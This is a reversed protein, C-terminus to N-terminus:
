APRTPRAPLFDGALVSNSGNLYTELVALVDKVKLRTNYPMVPGAFDERACNLNKNIAVILDDRNSRRLKELKKKLYEPTWFGVIELLVEKGSQHVLKFDPILVADGLDIVAQEREITWETKRKEFTRYFAEEVSSDFPHAQKYHSTLGCDQDLVFYRQGKETNVQATMQWKEALLLGPLFRALNVGYKQTKRFLSFPGDIEVVYGEEQPYIKHMLQALKLYRFVTQYGDWIRITMRFCRYLVGQALALNYRRILEDPAVTKEMRTLIQRDPLDGYLDCPLTGYEKAFRALVSDRVEQHMLDPHRVIPRYEEAFEFLRSRFAPYDLKEPPDYEAFGDLIKVLGRLIKYGVRHAEYEDLAAELEFRQKGVYSDYIHILEQAIRLYAGAHRRKLYRPTVYCEGVDFRVLDSTLM